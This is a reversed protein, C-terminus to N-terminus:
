RRILASPLAAADELALLNGRSVAMGTKRSPLGGELAHPSGNGRHVQMQRFNRRSGMLDLLM